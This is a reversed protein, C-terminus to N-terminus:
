GGRPGVVGEGTVTRVAVELDAQLLAVIVNGNHAPAHRLAADPQGALMGRGKNSKPAYL